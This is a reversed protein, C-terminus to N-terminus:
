WSNKAPTEAKTQKGAKIERKLARILQRRLPNAIVPFRKRMFIIGEL